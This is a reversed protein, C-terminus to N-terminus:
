VGRRPYPSDALFSSDNNSLLGSIDMDSEALSGRDRGRLSTRRVSGHISRRLRSGGSAQGVGISSRGAFSLERTADEDLEEDSDTHEYMDDEDYGEPIGEDLDADLDMDMGMSIDAGDMPGQGGAATPQQQQQMPVLDDEELLGERSEEDAFADGVDSGGDQERSMMERLRDEAARIDRIQEQEAPSVQVARADDSGGSGDSVSLTEEGQDDDDEEEEDEEDEEEEESDEGDFGFGEAEPIDDDLDQQQEEDEAMPDDDEDGAIVVDMDAGGIGLGGGMGGAGGGEAEAEALQAQLMAERRHAEAQEELERREERLQFLTKPVGPPKLWASGYNAVNARRREM